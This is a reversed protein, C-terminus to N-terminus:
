EKVSENGPNGLLTFNHLHSGCDSTKPSNTYNTQTYRGCVNIKGLEAFTRARARILQM